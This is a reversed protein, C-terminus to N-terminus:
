RSGVSRSICRLIVGKFTQETMRIFVVVDVNNHIPDIMDGTHEMLRRRDCCFVNIDDLLESEQLKGCIHVKDDSRLRSRM